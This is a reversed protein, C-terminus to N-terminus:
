GVQMFTGAQFSHLDLMILLGLDAAAEIVKDLVQLSTLSNFTLKSYFINPYYKQLDTNMNYFNISDPKADKLVLDLYFPVKILILTINYDHIEYGSAMSVM